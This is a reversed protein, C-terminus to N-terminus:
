DVKEPGKDHFAEIFRVIAGEDYKDLKLLRGWAALAINSDNADRPEVIIKRYRKAFDKLQAISSSDLDSKYAIWIGGHELNHILQEDPLTLDYDGWAAPQPWHQGSTPPNSNYAPHDTSGQPIHERGLEPIAEGPLNTPVKQSKTFLFFGLGAFILVAILYTLIIKM